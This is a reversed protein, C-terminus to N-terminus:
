GTISDFYTPEGDVFIDLKEYKPKKNLKYVHIIGMDINRKEVPHIFNIELTNGNEKIKAKTHEGGLFVIYPIHENDYILQLVPGRQINEEVERPPSATKQLSYDKSSYAKCSILLILLILMMGIKKM